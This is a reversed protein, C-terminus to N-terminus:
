KETRREITIDGYGEDQRATVRGNKLLELLALFVSIVEERDFDGLFLDFFSVPGKRTKELILTM